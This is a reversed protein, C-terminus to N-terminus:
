NQVQSPEFSCNASLLSCMLIAWRLTLLFPLSSWGQSTFYSARLNEMPLVRRPHTQSPRPRPLSLCLWSLLVVNGTDARGSRPWERHSQSPPVVLDLGSTPFDVQSGGAPFLHPQCAAGSLVRRSCLDLTLFLERDQLGPIPVLPGLRPLSLDVLGSTVGSICLRHTWESFTERCKLKKYVLSILYFGIKIFRNVTWYLTLSWFVWPEDSWHPIHFSIPLKLLLGLPLSWSWGQNMIHSQPLQSKEPDWNEWGRNMSGQYIGVAGSYFFRQEERPVKRQQARDGRRVDYGESFVRQIRRPRLAKACVPGDVQIWGLREM